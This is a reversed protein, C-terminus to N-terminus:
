PGFRIEGWGGKGGNQSPSQMSQLRIGVMGSCRNSGNISRNASISASTGTIASVKPATHFHPSDQHRYRAIRRYGTNGPHKGLTGNWATVCDNGCRQIWKPLISQTLLQKRLAEDAMTPKVLNMHYAV